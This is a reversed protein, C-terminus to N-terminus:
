KEANLKQTYLAVLEERDKEKLLALLPRDKLIRKMTEQSVKTM